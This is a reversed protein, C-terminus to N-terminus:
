NYRDTDEDLDEQEEPDERDEPKQQRFLVGFLVLLGAALLYWM